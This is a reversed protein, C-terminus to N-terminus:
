TVVSICLDGKLYHTYGVEFMNFQCLEFPVFSILTYFQKWLLSLIKLRHFLGSCCYCPSIYLIMVTPLINLHVTVRKKCYVFWTVYPPCWYTCLQQFYNLQSEEQWLMNYHQCLSHLIKHFLFPCLIIFLTQFWLFWILSQFNRLQCCNSDLPRFPLLM